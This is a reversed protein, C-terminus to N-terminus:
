KCGGTEGEKDTDTMVIGVTLNEEKSCIDWGSIREEKATKDTDLKWNSKM